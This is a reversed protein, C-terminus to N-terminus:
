IIGGLDNAVASNKPNYVEYKSLVPRLDPYYVWFVPRDSNPVIEGTSLKYPIVPAIGLIRVLMRSTEKDFVWEEKIRFKYISDPDVAKARVEYGVVNGDLDYKKSTDFGGGFVSMAQDPTIPTTFRDDDASFATVTGDKIAKLLISIFRQSGNDDVASYRFPLNLKERADIERWVRVKYVADDERLNEYPLPVKQKILNKEYIADNRLSPRSTDMLGGSTSPVVTIPLTTDLGAPAANANGYASNPNNAPARRTTDTTTSPTGYASTNAPRRVPNRQQAMMANVTFFFLGSLAIFRFYKSKM